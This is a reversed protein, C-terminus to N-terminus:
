ALRGLTRELFSRVRHAGTAFVLHQGDIAMVPISAGYREELDADGSIDVERFVPVTEGAKAREELVVQLVARTEDCLECSPRRYLTLRPRPDSHPM